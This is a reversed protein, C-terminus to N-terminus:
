SGHEREDERKIESLWQPEASDDVIETSDQTIKVDIINGEKLTAQLCLCIDKYYLNVKGSLKSYFSAKLSDKRLVWECECLPKCKPNPPMSIERLHISCM